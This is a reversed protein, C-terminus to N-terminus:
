EVSQSELLARLGDEGGLAYAAAAADHGCRLALKDAERINAALETDSDSASIAWYVWCPAFVGTGVVVHPLGGYECIFKSM